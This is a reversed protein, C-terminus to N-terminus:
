EKEKAFLGCSTDINEQYVISKNNIIEIGYMDKLVKDHLKITSQHARTCNENIYKSLLSNNTIPKGARMQNYIYKDRDIAQLLKDLCNKDTSTTINVILLLLELIVCWAFFRFESQNM